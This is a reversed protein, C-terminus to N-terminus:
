ANRCICLLPEIVVCGEPTVAVNVAQGSLASRLYDADWKKSAKWSLAGGRIVFPTNRAVYRMFELPSPESDLEDIVSANLDNHTEILDRLAEIASAGSMPHHQQISGAPTPCSFLNVDSTPSFLLPFLKFLIRAFDFRGPPTVRYLCRTEWSSLVPALFTCHTIESELCFSRAPVQHSSVRLLSHRTTSSRRGSASVISIELPDVFSAAPLDRSKEERGVVM